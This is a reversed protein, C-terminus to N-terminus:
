SIKARVGAPPPEGYKLFLWTLPGHTVALAIFRLVVAVELTVQATRSLTFVSGAFFYGACAWVAGLMPVYQAFSAPGAPRRFSAIMGLVLMTILLVLIVMGLLLSGRGVRFNWYHEHVRAPGSTVAGVMFYIVATFYIILLFLSTLNLVRGPERNPFCFLARGLLIWAPGALSITVFRHYAAVPHNVALGYAHAADMLGFLLLAGAAKQAAHDPASRVRLLFAFGLLLGASALSWVPLFLSNLM